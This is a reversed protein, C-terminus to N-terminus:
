WPDKALAKVMVFADERAQRLVQTVNRNHFISGRGPPFAGRFHLHFELISTQKLHKKDKEFPHIEPEMNFNQPQLQYREM